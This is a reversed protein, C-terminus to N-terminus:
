SFLLDLSLKLSEVTAALARSMKQSKSVPSIILRRGYFTWDNLQEENKYRLIPNLVLHSCWVFPREFRGHHRFLVQATAYHGRAVAAQLPSRYGFPGPGNGNVRAGNQLLVEVVAERGYLSAAYLATGFSMGPANIAAGESILFRVMDLNGAASAEQLPTGYLSGADNIDAGAQLLRHAVKIHGHLAACHIPSDCWTSQLRFQAPYGLGRWIDVQVLNRLKTIGDNNTGRYEAISYSLLGGQLHVDAGKSLLLQVISEHGGLSAVQLAAGVHSLDDGINNMNAGKDLLIKVVDEHGYYVAISLPSGINKSPPPDPPAGANLLVAVVEAHGHHAAASLSNEHAGGHDNPNAGNQLLRRVVDIHGAGSARQLPTGAYIERLAYLPQSELNQSPRLLLDVTLDLGFSAAIWLPSVPQRLLFLEIKPWNQQSTKAQISCFANADRELFISIASLMTAEVQKAHDGWFEAAYNYFPNKSNFLRIEQLNSCPLGTFEEMSLVVLCSSAQNAHGDPYKTGRITKFYEQTSYHVFRIINANKEIVVLGGCVAIIYGSDVIGKQDFKAVGPEVALAYQLEDVTVPRFAHSLFSFVQAALDRADDNQSEVRSLAKEHAQSLVMSLDPLTRRISRVSTKQALSDM